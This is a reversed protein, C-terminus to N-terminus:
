RLSHSQRNTKKKWWLYYGSLPLSFGILAALVYLIKSWIGGWTGVHLSYFWGKLSESFPVDDAYIIQEIHGNQPNFIAKDTKPRLSDKQPTIQVESTTLTIKKFSPYVKDLDTLVTNWLSYDFIHESPKQAKKNKDKSSAKKQAPISTAQTASTTHEFLGYAANRYWKFSWTLGTLAMILLFLGSYFGLVVHCDYWLRRWGKNTKITLRTRINKMQRPIWIFFGSILIVATILTTTGVIFKGVSMEGRIAPPNLLYRHLHRVKAFFVPREATGKIEGTYPDVVLVKRPNDSLTIACAENGGKTYSLTAVSAQPLYKQNIRAALESPSLMPVNKPPTIKFLDRQMYNTIDKEFVLFAGTLCILSIIIGFPISLWLHIKSFFKRM